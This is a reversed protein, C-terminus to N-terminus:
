EGAGSQEPASMPRIQSEIFAIDEESLGYREYLMEDTWTRDMPLAPVFAFLERRLHQTNMRLWILFRAFKTRLFEAMHEAEAATDFTDVVLYTETCASQPGVAFPNAIVSYPGDHDEGYAAHLLTKHRPVWYANATVSSPDIWEVKRGMVHLAIAGPTDEPVYRRFKARLGFPVLASVREDMTAEGKAQVKELVSVGENSRVFVDYADLSRTVPASSTNGRVTRITCGGKHDRSWLFYNVGGRIKVGPFCDKSQPFDVMHAMRHDSLMRQRFGTLGLGGAFWRSPTIMLVYKPNMEIAQEVFLNYVPKTRTNGDSDIQYPPNGVIVDFKMDKMEETPYAGHIFAYAYNERKSGRELDAPAGCTECTAATGDDGLDHEAPVFPLNGAEDDFRVVSHQGSADRSCYLTRRSIVGTMETISVGFLMSRYIHERRADFDPEWDALGDLLRLAAERLFVGSKSFPDVWTLTPDSWVEKPLLDLMARAVKPPTPVEDNSLQALCDLIDPVHQRGLPTVM